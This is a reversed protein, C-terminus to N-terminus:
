VNLRYLILLSQWFVSVFCSLDICFRFVRCPFASTSAHLRHSVLLGSVSLRPQPADLPWIRAATWSFPPNRPHSCSNSRGDMFLASKTSSLPIKFKGDMFLASKTSSLPFKFKGDMFLASKTSSLPIKFKGDM